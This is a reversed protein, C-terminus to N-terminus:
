AYTCSTAYRVLRGLIGMSACVSPLGLPPTAYAVMRANRPTAITTSCAPSWFSCNALCSWGDMSPNVFNICDKDSIHPAAAKCSYKHKEGLCPRQVECFEGYYGPSCVCAGTMLDCYSGTSRTNCVKNVCFPITQLCPHLWDESKSALFVPRAIQGPIQVSSSAKLMHHRSPSFAPTCVAETLIGVRVECNSPTGGNCIGKKGDSNPINCEAPMASKRTCGSSGCTNCQLDCSSPDCSQM